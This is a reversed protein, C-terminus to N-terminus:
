KFVMKADVVVADNERIIVPNLDMQSLHDKFDEGLKSLKLLIEIVLDKDVKMGRFNELVKSGKLERLMEKADYRTIPIVRFSVDSLAEAFVGGLGVMISQGFSDDNVIGMILELGPGEMNEILIKEGPFRKRLSAYTKNLEENDCINLVVGKVETKHLIKPSSVKMVAPYEWSGTSLDEEAMITKFRTTPIDYRKLIDKVEDESLNKRGKLNEIFTSIDM